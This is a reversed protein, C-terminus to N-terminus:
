APERFHMRPRLEDAEIARDLRSALRDPYVAKFLASSFDESEIEDVFGDHHDHFLVRIRVGKEHGTVDVLRANLPRNWRKSIHAADILKSGWNARRRLWIAQEHDTMYNVTPWIRRWDIALSPGLTRKM